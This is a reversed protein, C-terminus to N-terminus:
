ARCAQAFRQQLIIFPILRFARPATIPPGSRVLKSDSLRTKWCFVVLYLQNLATLDGSKEM